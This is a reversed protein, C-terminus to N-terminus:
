AKWAVAEVEIRSDVMLKAETTSRAPKSGPFFESYVRNFRGFDAADQLWVTVKVVDALTCGALALASEVNRMVQRTHEEIGGGVIKGDDGKAVQGSIFVLNGAKVAASFPLAPAANQHDFHQVSM